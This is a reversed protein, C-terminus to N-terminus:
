FPGWLDNVVFQFGSLLLGEVILFPVIAVLLGSKERAFDDFEKTVNRAQLVQLFVILGRIDVHSTYDAFEFLPRAEGFLEPGPKVLVVTPQMETLFSFSLSDVLPLLWHGSITSAVDTM